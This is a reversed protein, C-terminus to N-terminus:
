KANTDNTLRTNNISSEQKSLWEVERDVLTDTNMIIANSTTEVGFDAGNLQIQILPEDSDVIAVLCVFRLWSIVKSKPPEIAIVLHDTPVLVIVTM